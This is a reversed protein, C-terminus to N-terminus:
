RITLPLFLKNNEQGRRIMKYVQSLLNAQGCHNVTKKKKRQKMDVVIVLIDNEGDDSYGGIIGEYQIQLIVKNKKKKLM